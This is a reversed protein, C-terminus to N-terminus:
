EDDTRQAARLAIIYEIDNAFDGTGAGGRLVAAVSSRAMKKHRAAIKKLLPALEGEENDLPPAEGTRCRMWFTKEREDLHYQIEDAPYSFFKKWIDRARSTQLFVDAGAELLDQFRHPYRATFSLIQREFVVDPGGSPAADSKSTPVRKQRAIVGGKLEAESLNLARALSSAFQSYLEPLEVLDKLFNRAWSVSERPAMHRKIMDLCFRLGDPAAALLHEFADTGQERLLADIDQGQPLLVVRCALGRPLLLECARQAAKRGASDGDFLLTVQSTFGSLRKVQEPTLATGLV